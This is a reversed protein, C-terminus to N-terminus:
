SATPPRAADELEKLAEIRDNREEILYQRVWVPFNLDTEDCPVGYGGGETCGGNDKGDLGLSYLLYSDGKRRYKLTRDAGSNNYPDVPVSLIFEPTLAELQGPLKGHKRKYLELAMMVILQRRTAQCRKVANKKTGDFNERHQAEGCLTELRGLWNLSHLWLAWDNQYDIEVDVEADEIELLETLAHAVTADSAKDIHPAAQFAGIGEIAISILRTVLTREDVIVMPLKVTQMADNLAADYDGRSAHWKSRFCLARAISRHKQVPGLFDWSDHTTKQVFTVKSDVQDINKFIKEVQQLHKEAVSVMRDTEDPPFYGTFDLESKEILTAQNLVLDAQTQFRNLRVPHTISVKRMLDGILVFQLLVLGGIVVLALRGFIPTQQQDGSLWRCCFGFLLFCLGITLLIGISFDKIEGWIFSTGNIAAFLNSFNPEQFILEFAMFQGIAAAIFALALWIPTVRKGIATSILLVCGAAIGFGIVYATPILGLDEKNQIILTVLVALATVMLLLNKISWQTKFGGENPATPDSATQLNQSRNARRNSAHAAIARGYTITACFCWLTQLLDFAGIAAMPLVTLTLLVFKVFWHWPKGGLWWALVGYAFWIGFLSVCFTEINIWDYSFLDRNNRWM